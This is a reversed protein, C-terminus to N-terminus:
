LDVNVCAFAASKLMDLARRVDVTRQPRGLAHVESEEFSQVGLSVRTVGQAALFAIKQEDVTAPSAEVCKPIAKCLDVGLGGLTGFVRALEPVTLFTPTGGGMALRAFRTCPGLALAVAEAQREVADL